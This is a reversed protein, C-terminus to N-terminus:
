EGCLVFHKQEPTEVLLLVKDEVTKDDMEAQFDKITLLPKAGARLLRMGACIGQKGAAGSPRVYTIILGAEFSDYGLKKALEPTLNDVSFGFDEDLHGMVEPRTESEMKGEMDNNGDLRSPIIELSLEIGDRQVTFVTTEGPAIRSAREFFVFNTDISTGSIHTVVDGVQLGAQAAPSRAAIDSVILGGRSKLRLHRAMEGSVEETEIGFYPRVMEGGLILREAVNIALKMPIAFGIGQFGRSSGYGGESMGVMQGELNVIAGGSNGPNTAADTQFFPIHPAHELHRKTASVIGSSVSVGLGYPNGITVIADGPHVEDTEAIALRRTLRAGEITLVAIDTIPDRLVKSVQLRRGDDLRVFVADADRVVHDCTLIHGCEDIIIGSGSGCLLGYKDVQSDDPNQQVAGNVTAANRLAWERTELLGSYTEIIVISPRVTDVVHRLTAPYGTPDVSRQYASGFPEAVVESWLIAILSLGISIASCGVQFKKM